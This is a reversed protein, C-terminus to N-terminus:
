YFTLHHLTRSVPILIGFYLPINFFGKMLDNGENYYYYWVSYFFSITVDLIVGSIAYSWWYVKFNPDLVPVGTVRLVMIGANRVFQWKGKPSRSLYEAKATKIKGLLINIM